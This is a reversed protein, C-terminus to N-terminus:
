RLDLGAQRLQSLIDGPEAGHQKCQEYFMEKPSRGQCMKLVEAVQPNQQAIQMLAVQPNQINQLMGAMQKIQPIAQPNIGSASAAMGQMLPNM